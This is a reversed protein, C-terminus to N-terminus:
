LLCYVIVFLFVHALFMGTVEYATVVTPLQVTAELFRRRVRGGGSSRNRSTSFVTPVIGTALANMASVLDGEYAPPQIDESLGNTVSITYVTEANETTQATPAGTTTITTPADTTAGITPVGTTITTPANTPPGTTPVATMPPATVLTGSTPAASVPPEVVPATPALTTAGSPVETPSASPAASGLVTVIGQDTLFCTAFLRTQEQSTSFDDQGVISIHADIGLCCNIDQSDGGFREDRCLCTLTVFTAQLALPMQQYTDIADLESGQPAQLQVFDVFEQAQVKGDNNGNADAEALHQYCTTTDVFGDVIIPTEDPLEGLSELGDGVLDQAHTTITTTSLVVSLFLLSLRMISQRTTTLLIM